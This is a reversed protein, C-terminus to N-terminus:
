LDVTQLSTINWSPGHTRTVHYLDRCESQNMGAHRVSAYKACVGIM